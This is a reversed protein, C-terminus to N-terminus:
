SPFILSDPPFDSAKPTFFHGQYRCYGLWKYLFRNLKWRNILESEGAFDHKGIEIGLRRFCRSVVEAQRADHYVRVKLNPNPACNGADDQFYYTLIVTTTYKCREIVKLHLDLAGPVTSVVHKSSRHLEPCLRRIRMYNTEYLDMLGVFSRPKPSQIRYPYDKVLVM